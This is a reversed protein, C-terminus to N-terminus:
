STMSRVRGPRSPAREVPRAIGANAAVDGDLLEPRLVVGRFEAVPKRALGARGPAEAMRVDDGDVVDALFVPQREDGHLVDPRSTRRDRARGREAGHALQLQHLLDAGAERVGVLGADHVAVDLGGVQDDARFAGDLDEVEADRLQHAEPSVHGPAIRPM